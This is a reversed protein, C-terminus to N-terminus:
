DKFDLDFSLKAAPVPSEEDTSIGAFINGTFSDKFSKWTIQDQSFEMQLKPEESGPSGCLSCDLDAKAYSIKVYVPKNIVVVTLANKSHEISFLTGNAELNIPLRTGEEIKIVYSIAKNQVIETFNEQTMEHLLFQKTEESFLNISLFLAAAPIIKSLLKM